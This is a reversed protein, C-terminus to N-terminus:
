RLLYKYLWNQITKGYPPFLIWSLSLKGRTLVSKAHSFTKFGEHGHYNGLGSDGIGGFPLDDCAVHFAADNICMGGAHSTNIYRQQLAKDFSYLYLALPRPNNQVYSIVEDHSQYSMIPLLPAFIEQQMIAMEDTVGTVLTLPVKRNNPDCYEDTLAIIRAGKAEADALLSQVRQYQSENVISTYDPNDNVTPYLRNFLAKTESIFNDIQEAPCFLYDPAVCTQGSNVVKGHIFREAAIKIDCDAAIVAPSKGGLELTVPVLNNAAAKMVYRGVTTSGTFFLHDFKLASFAAAVDAEGGFVAIEDSSSIEALIEALLRATNPTFESMKLMARNGAAIATILPGLSLFLPYNWPVMIGVVGKPQYHIVGSAPQFHLAIHRKEPKMWRKLHKLTYNLHGLTTVLDGILSDDKARHGFDESLASVFEDQKAIIQKKLALLLKRRDDLSSYPASNFATRQKELTAALMNLDTILM